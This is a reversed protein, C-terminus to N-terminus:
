SAMYIYIYINLIIFQEFYRYLVMHIIIHNVHTQKLRPHAQRHTPNPPLPHRPLTSVSGSPPVELYAYSISLM